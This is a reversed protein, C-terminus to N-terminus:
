LIKIVLVYQSANLSKTNIWVNIFLLHFALGALLNIFSLQMEWDSGM